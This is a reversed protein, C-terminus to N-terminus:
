WLVGDLYPEKLSRRAQRALLRKEEQTLDDSVRNETNSPDTIVSSEINKEIWELVNVFNDGYSGVKYGSLAILTVMELYFSPFELSHEIKWIKLAKIEVIRQSEKVIKIHEHINTKTWTGARRRYLSSDNTYPSQRKGPVLDVDLGKHKIRMSVNRPDAQYGIEQVYKYLGNYIDRLSHPTDYKLSLFLDVDTGGSIATGKSYSGSFYVEDFYEGAFRQLIPYLERGAQIVQSENRPTYKQVIALIYEDPTM